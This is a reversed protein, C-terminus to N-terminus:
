KSAGKIHHTLHSTSAAVERRRILNFMTTSRGQQYGHRRCLSIDFGSISVRSPCWEGLQSSFTKGIV